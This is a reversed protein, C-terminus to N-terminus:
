MREFFSKQRGGRSVKSSAAAYGLASAELIADPSLANFSFRGNEDAVTGIDTGKVVVAAGIVPLENEDVVVGKVQINQSHSIQISAALVIAM